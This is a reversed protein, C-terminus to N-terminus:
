ICNGSLIKRPKGQKCTLILTHKRFIMFGNSGNQTYGVVRSM